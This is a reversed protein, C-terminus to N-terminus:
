HNNTHIRGDVVPLFFNLYAMIEPVTKHSRLSMNDKFVSALAGLTSISLFLLFFKKKKADQFGSDFHGTDPDPDKFRHVFGLIWIRILIDRILFV